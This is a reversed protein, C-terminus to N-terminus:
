AAAEEEVLDEVESLQEQAEKIQAKIAEFEDEMRTTVEQSRKRFEAEAKRAQEQLDARLEVGSEPAFFLAAVAGVFVGAM